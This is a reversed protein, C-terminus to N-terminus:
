VLGLIMSLFKPFIVALALFVAILVLSEMFQIWGRLRMSRFVLRAEEPRIWRGQFLILGSEMAYQRLQAAMQERRRRLSEVFEAPLGRDVRDFKKKRRFRRLM